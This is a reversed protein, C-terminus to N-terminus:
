YTYTKVLVPDRRVASLPNGPMQLHRTPVFAKMYVRLTRDDVELLIAPNVSIEGNPVEAVEERPVYHRVLEDAFIQGIDIEAEHSSGDKSTWAVKAPPPFNRIGGHGGNWDKLHDPGYSAGSPAPKDSGHHVGDYVVDCSVTDFCRASFTHKDFRLPWAPAKENMAAAKAPDGAPALEGSTLVPTEPYTYRAHEMPAREQIQTMAPEASGSTACASLALSTVAAMQMPLRRM